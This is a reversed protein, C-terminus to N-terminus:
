IQWGMMKGDRRPNRRVEGHRGHIERYGGQVGWGLDRQKDGPCGKRSQTTNGMFRRYRGQVGRPDGSTEEPDRM